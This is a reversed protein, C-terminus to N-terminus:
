AAARFFWSKGLRNACHKVSAVAMAEASKKCLVANPFCGASADLFSAFCFVERGVPGCVGGSGDARLLFDGRKIVVPNLKRMGPSAAEAARWTM